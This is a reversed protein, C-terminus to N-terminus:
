EREHLQKGRYKGQFMGDTLNVAIDASRNLVPIGFGHPFEGIFRM